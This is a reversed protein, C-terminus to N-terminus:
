SERVVMAAPAPSVTRAAAEEVVAALTQQHALSRASIIIIVVREGAARAEQAPHGHTELVEVVAVPMHSMLVQLILHYVLVASEQQLPPSWRALAALWVQEVEAV